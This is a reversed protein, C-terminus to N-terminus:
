DNEKAIACEHLRKLVRCAHIVESGYTNENFTGSYVWSKKENDFEASLVIAGSRLNLVRLDGTAECYTVIHPTSNSYVVHATTGPVGKEMGNEICDEYIPGLYVHSDFDPAIVTEIFASSLNSTIDSM